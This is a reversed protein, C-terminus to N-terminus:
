FRYETKSPAIATLIFFSCSMEIMTKPSDASFSCSVGGYRWGEYARKASAVATDVDHRGSLPVYTLVEGDYPSTVPIFRSTDKLSSDSVHRVFSSLSPTEEIRQPDPPNENRTEAGCEVHTHDVWNQLAQPAHAQLLTQIQSFTSNFSSM